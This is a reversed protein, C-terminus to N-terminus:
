ILLWVGMTVSPLVTVFIALGRDTSGFIMYHAVRGVVFTGVALWLWASGLGTYEAAGMVLAMLPANEMLNGHIRIRKFLEPDGGDGRLVGGIKDRRMGVWGTLPILAIALLSIFTFSVPLPM